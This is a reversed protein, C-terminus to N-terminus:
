PREPPWSMSRSPRQNARDSNRGHRQEGGADASTSRRRRGARRAARDASRRWAAQRWQGGRHRQPHRLSRRGQESSGSAAATASSQPAPATRPARQRSPGRRQRQNRAQDAPRAAISDSDQERASVGTITAPRAIMAAASFPVAIAPRRAPTANSPDPRRRSRLLAGPAAKQQKGGCRQHAERLRLARLFDARAIWCCRWARPAPAAM